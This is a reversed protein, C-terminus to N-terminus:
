RLLICFGGKCTIQSYSEKWDKTAEQREESITDRLTVGKLFKLFDISSYERKNPVQDEGLSVIFLISLGLCCLM